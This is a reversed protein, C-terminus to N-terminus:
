QKNSTQQTCLLAEIEEINDDDYSMKSLASEISNSETIKELFEARLLLINSAGTQYQVALSKLRYLKESETENGAVTLLMNEMGSQIENLQTMVLRRMCMFNFLSISEKASDVAQLIFPIKNILFSYYEDNEDETGWTLDNNISALYYKMRKSQIRLTKRANINFLQTFLWLLSGTILGSVIGSLLQVGM